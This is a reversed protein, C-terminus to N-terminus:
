GLEGAARAHLGRCGGGQGRRVVCARAVDGAQRPRTGCWRRGKGM